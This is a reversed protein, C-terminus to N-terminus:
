FNVCVKKKGKDNLTSQCQEMICIHRNHKIKYAATFYM